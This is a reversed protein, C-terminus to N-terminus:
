ECRGDYHLIAIWVRASTRVYAQGIFALYTTGFEELKDLQTDRNLASALADLAQDVERLDGPAANVFEVRVMMDGTTLQRDKDGLFEELPETEYDVALIEIRAQGETTTFIASNIM